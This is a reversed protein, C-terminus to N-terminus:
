FQFCLYFQEFNAEPPKDNGSDYRTTPELSVLIFHFARLFISVLLFCQKDDNECM